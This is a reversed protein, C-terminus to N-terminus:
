SPVQLVPYKLSTAGNRWLTPNALNWQICMHNSYQQKRYRDRMWTSCRLPSFGKLIHLIGMRPSYYITSSWQWHVVIYLTRVNHICVRWTLIVVLSSNILVILLHKDTKLEYEPFKTINIHTIWWKLICTYVTPNERAKSFILAFTASPPIGRLDQPFNWTLHIVIHCVNYMYQVHVNYMYLKLCVENLTCYTYLVTLEGTGWETVHQGMRTCVHVYQTCMLFPRSVCSSHVACM